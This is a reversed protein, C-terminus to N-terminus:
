AWKVITSMKNKTLTKHQGFPEKMKKIKVIKKWYPMQLLSRWKQEQIKPKLAKKLMNSTQTDCM